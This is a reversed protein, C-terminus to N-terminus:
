ENFKLLEWPEMDFAKALKQLTLITANHPEKGEIDQVHKSNVKALEALKEQSWRRETRLRHVKEALQLAIDDPKKNM